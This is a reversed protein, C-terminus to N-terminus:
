TASSSRASTRALMPPLVRRLWKAEVAGSARHRLIGERDLFLSTPLAISGGAPDRALRASVDGKRDLAISYDLKFAAVYQRVRPPAELTDIGLLRLGAGRYERAVERVTPQEVICGDCWSAFFNIWLCHGRFDATSVTGGSLSPLTIDVPAGIALPSAAAVPLVTSGVMAASAQLFASRIV